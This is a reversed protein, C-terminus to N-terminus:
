AIKPPTLIPSLAPKAFLVTMLYPNNDDALSVCAPVRVPTALDNQHELEDYTLHSASVRDSPAFTFRLLADEVLFHMALCGILICLVLRVAQAQHIFPPSVMKSM